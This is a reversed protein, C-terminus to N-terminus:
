AEYKIRFELLDLVYAPPVREGMEWSQLTRIPVGYAKSFEQQTMNGRLAKVRDIITTDPFLASVREPALVEIIKKAEDILLPKIKGGDELFFEGTRKRYLKSGDYLGIFVAKDTDYRKGNIIM